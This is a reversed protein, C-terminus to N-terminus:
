GELRPSPEIAQGHYGRTIGLCLLYVVAVASAVGSPIAAREGFLAMATAASFGSNKLTAMLVYSIRTKQEVHRQKLVAEIAIAVGFTRIVNVLAISFVLQPEGLFAQRNLGTITFLVFAFAWNAIRGRWRTIPEKLSSALMARSALLPVAVLQILLKTLGLPDLGPEGALLLVMGPTVVLSALYAGVMGLLSFAVDGGFVETFAVVGAAPPTAAAMVFGPWLAREPVLLRAPVLIAMGELVFTLFVSVFAPRVLKRLPSFASNEVQTSSLAMALALAPLTWNKTYAAWDGLAIGMLVSGIFLFNRDGLARSLRQVISM